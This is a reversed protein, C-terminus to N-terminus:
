VSDVRRPLGTRGPRDRPNTAPRSPAASRSPSPSTRNLRKGM